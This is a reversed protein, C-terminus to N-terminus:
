FIYITAYSTNDSPAIQIIDSTPTAPIWIRLDKNSSVLHAGIPQRQLGHNIDIAAGVGAWSYKNDTTGNAGVRILVGSTNARQFTNWNGSSDKTQPIGPEINGNIVKHVTQAWKLQPPALALSRDAPDQTKM